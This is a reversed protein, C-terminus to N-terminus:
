EYPIRQTDHPSTMSSVRDNYCPANHGVITTYSSTQGGDKEDFRESRAIVGRDELEKYVQAVTRESVGAIEAVTNNSPWVGRNNTTAFMCLISFIFKASQSLMKDCLVAMDVCAFWFDKSARLTGADQNNM